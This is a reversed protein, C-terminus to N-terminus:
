RPGLNRLTGRLAALLESDSKSKTEKSGVRNKFLEAAAPTCVPGTNLNPCFGPESPASAEHPGYLGSDRGGAANKRRWTRDVFLEGDKRIANENQDLFVVTFPVLMGHYFAEPMPKLGTLLVVGEVTYDYGHFKLSNMIRPNLVQRRPFDRNGLWWLPERDDFFGVLGIESDWNTLLKCDMLTVRRRAVLLVWIAYAAGGGPLDYVMAEFGGRITIDLPRAGELWDQRIQIDVGDARMKKARTLHALTEARTLRRKMTAM